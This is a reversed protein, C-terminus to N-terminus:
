GRGGGGRCVSVSGTFIHNHSQWLICFLSLCSVESIVKSLFMQIMQCASPEAVAFVAGNLDWAMTIMLKVLSLKKTCRLSQLVSSLGYLQEM